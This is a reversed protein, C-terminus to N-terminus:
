NLVGGVVRMVAMPFDAPGYAWGTAVEARLLLGLAAVALLGAMWPLHGDVRRALLNLGALGVCLVGLVFSLDASM